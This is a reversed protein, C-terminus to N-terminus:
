LQLSTGPEFLVLAHVTSFVEGSLPPPLVQSTAVVGVGLTDYRFWHVQHDGSESWTPEWYGASPAGLLELACTVSQGVGLGTETAGEHGAGAAVADVPVMAALAGTRSDLTGHVWVDDATWGCWGARALERGGTDGVQAGTGGADLDVVCLDPVGREQELASPDAGLCVGAVCRAETDVTVPGSSLECAPGFGRLGESLEV